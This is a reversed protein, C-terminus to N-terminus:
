REDDSVKDFVEAYKCCLDIEKNDVKLLSVGRFANQWGVNFFRAIDFQQRAIARKTRSPVDPIGVAVLAKLGLLFHEIVFFAVVRLLIRYWHDTIQVDLQFLVTLSDATFILIAVNTVVSIVNLLELIVYWAGIDAADDAAPRQCLRLIKFADTRFEIYNNLLAIACAPPFVVGFLCVYGFQIVLENYDDLTSDYVALNSEKVYRNNSNSVLNQLPKRGTEAEAGTGAGIVINDNRNIPIAGGGQEVDVHEDSGRKRKLGNDDETTTQPTTPENSPEDGSRMRARLRKISSMVFPVVLESVQGVTARTIVLSMLQQELEQMCLIKSGADTPMILGAICKRDAFPRLFAIYFLSIYNSVFQFAFRKYILSNEFHQNTRHNERRTLNMSVSRWIPDFITILIGNLVGPMFRGFSDNNFMNGFYDSIETRFWLLIFTLGGMILVFLTTVACSQFRANRMVRPDEWPNRPLDVARLTEKKKLKASGPSMLLNEDAQEMKKGDSEAVRQDKLNDINNMSRRGSDVATSKGRRPKIKQDKRTTDAIDYENGGDGSERSRSRRAADAVDSAADIVHMDDMVAGELLDGLPVFGGECYFGVRMEGVFQARTDDVTEKKYNSHGWQQCISASQRKWNELFYTTWLVVCAAFIWLVACVWKVNVVVRYAIYAPICVISLALSNKGYFSLFM